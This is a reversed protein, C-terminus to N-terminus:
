EEASAPEEAVRYLKALVLGVVAGVFLHTIVALLWPDTSMNLGAYNVSDTAALYTGVWLGFIAGAKVDNSGVAKDFLWVVAVTQVLHALYMYPALGDSPPRMMNANAMFTEAFVGMMIASYLVAYVIYAVVVCLAFRGLSM